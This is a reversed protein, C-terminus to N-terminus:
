NITDLNLISDVKDDMSDDHTIFVYTLNRAKQLQVLLKFIAVKHILDLSSFPEDFFILDAQQILGRAIALRQQEGGSLTTVTRPLHEATLGVATLTVLLDEFHRAGIVERLVQEVTFAPDLATSTNQFVISPTGNTVIEGSTVEELGLALRILTTKGAGNKGRISQVQGKKVTWNLKHFIDKQGTKFLSLKNTYIKSVDQFALLVDSSNQSNHFTLQQWTKKAEQLQALFGTSQKSMYATAILHATGNELVLVDTSLNELLTLDHSSFILKTGRNLAAKALKIFYRVGQSDIASTPEDAIIVKPTNLLALSYVLRQLQGGSLQYPYKSLDNQSLQSLDLLESIAADVDSCEQQKIIDKVQALVKRHPDLANQPLQPIVRIDKGLQLVKDDDILQISGQYTLSDSYDGLLAKILTTKGGGSKGLLALSELEYEIHKISVITKQSSAIALDKIVLKM